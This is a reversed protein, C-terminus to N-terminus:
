SPKQVVTQQPKFLYAQLYILILLASFNFAEGGYEYVLSLWLYAVVEKLRNNPMGLTRAM